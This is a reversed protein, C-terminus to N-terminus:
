APAESEAPTVPVTNEEPITEETQKKKRKWFFM